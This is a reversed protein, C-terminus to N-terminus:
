ADGAVWNGALLSGRGAIPEPPVMRPSAASEAASEVGIGCTVVRNGATWEELNPTSIPTAVIALEPGLAQDPSMAEQALHACDGGYLVFWLAPEHPYPAYSGLNFTLDSSGIGEWHHESACPVVTAYDDLRCSGSNAEDRGLLANTLLALGILAVAAVSLVLARRRVGLIM